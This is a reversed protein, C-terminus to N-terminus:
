QVCVGGIGGTFTNQSYSQANTIAADVDLGYDTAPYQSVTNGTITPGVATGGWAIVVISASASCGGTALGSGAYEITSSTLSSGAQGAATVKFSIGAWAGPTPTSASSTFTVNQAVLKGQNAASPDVNLGAGLPFQLTVGELTLTATTNGVGTIDLDGDILYPIPIVPWTQSVDVAGTTIEVQGDHGTAGTKLSTPVTAAADANTLLIPSLGIGWDNITLNKSSPAFGVGTSSRGNFAIGNSLNHTITLDHLSILYPLANGVEIAANAVDDFGVAQGCYDLDVFGLGSTSLLQDGLGIPGWDGAAPTAAASTFKIHNASTGEAILGGPGGQAVLLNAGPKFQITNPANITLTAAKNAAGYVALATDVLYPIPIAPWTGDVDIQTGSVEVQGDHGSAGTTLSTPVTAVGDAFDFFIPSMGAPWDKIALNGSTAAFGPGITGGASASLYIGHAGNHTLTLDHLPFLRATSDRLEITSAHNNGFNGGGYELDIFALASTAL